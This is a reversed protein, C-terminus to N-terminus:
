IPKLYAPLLAQIPWSYPFAFLVVVMLMVGTPLTQRCEAGYLQYLNRRMVAWSCRRDRMQLNGAFCFWLATAALTMVINAIRHEGRYLIDVVAYQHKGAHKKWDEAEPINKRLWLAFIIPFASLFLARWGWVPVVLSYVQAAVVAGVSFGSILFGSAKNRLHKPWSEIVYTASSGYEGAMGMGIVLRAIFMTIYGPAFGCALTGASFLVISTVMALRRGYRDGMAGLMLGGFWRSIFAASILSAAQVTTLGFEGQVETLVLAILVFDFGDLLYGLWAASFARWQARNLHRYWPINQTTTSM